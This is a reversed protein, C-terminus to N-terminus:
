QSTLFSKVDEMRQTVAQIDEIKADSKKSCIREIRLSMKQEKETNKLGLEPYDTTKAGAVLIVLLDMVLLFAEKLTGNM